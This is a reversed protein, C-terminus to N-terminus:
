TANSRRRWRSATRRRWPPRPRCSSCAAPWTPIRCRPVHASRPRAGIWGVFFGRVADAVRALHPDDPHLTREREVLRAFDAIGDHYARGAASISTGGIPIVSIRENRIQGAGAIRTMVAAKLLILLNLTDLASERAAMEREERTTVIRDSIYFVIEKPAAEAPGGRGRYIVQIIEMLNNEIQFRPVEVLIHRGLPFSLGRSASSTMFVVPVHDKRAHVRARDEDSISAHIELYDQGKAFGQGHAGRRQRVAAIVRALRTKDQIYVIVQAEGANMGDLLGALDHVLVRQAADDLDRSAALAARRECRRSRGSRPM